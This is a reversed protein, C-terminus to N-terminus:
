TNLAEILMLEAYRRYSEYDGKDFAQEAKAELVSYGDLRKISVPKGAKESQYILYAQTFAEKDSEEEIHYSENTTRVQYTTM